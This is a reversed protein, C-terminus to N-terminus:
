GGLTDRARWGAMAQQNMHWAKHLVQIALEGLNYDVWAEEPVFRADDADSGPRLRGTKTFCLYDLVVYHYAIRGDPEPFIREVAEVLPGVEVELGVEEQMERRVGQVLTEGVRLAGGPISWLGRGPDKGRKVLLAARDEFLLGGVGIIPRLPYKRGQAKEQSISPM